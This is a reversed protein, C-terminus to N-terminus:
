RNVNIVILSHRCTFHPDNSGHFAKPVSPVQPSHPGTAGQSVPHTKPRLDAWGGGAEGRQNSYSSAVKRSRWRSVHLSLLPRTSRQLRKRSEAASQVSRIRAGSRVGGGSKIYKRNKRKGWVSEGSCGSKLM